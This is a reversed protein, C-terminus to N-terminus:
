LKNKKTKEKYALRGKAAEIAQVKQLEKYSSVIECQQYPTEDKKAPFAENYGTLSIKLTERNLAFKDWVIFDPNTKYPLGSTYYNQTVYDENKRVTHWGLIYDGKKSGEGSLPTFIGSAAEYLGYEAFLYTTPATLCRSSIASTIGKKTPKEMVCECHLGKGLLPDKWDALAEGAWFTQLVLAVTLNHSLKSM